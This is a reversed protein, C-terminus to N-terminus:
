GFREGLPGIFRCQGHLGSPGNIKGSGRCSEHRGGHICEEFKWLDRRAMTPVIEKLLQLRKGGMDPYVLSTGTINAGPYALSKVLGTGVPDGPWVMVIPITSTAQQLALLAQTSPGIIVDVKLGVLETAM